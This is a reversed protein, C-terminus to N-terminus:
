CLSEMNDFLVAIIHVILHESARIFRCLFTELFSFIMFLYSSPRAPVKSDM